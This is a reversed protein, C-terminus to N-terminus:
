HDHDPPDQEVEIGQIHLGSYPLLLELSKSQVNKAIVALLRVRTSASSFCQVLGDESHGMPKEGFM